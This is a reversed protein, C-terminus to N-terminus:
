NSVLLSVNTNLLILNDSIVSGVLHGVSIMHKWINAEMCLLLLFLTNSVFILTAWYYIPASCLSSSFSAVHCLFLIREVETKLEELKM